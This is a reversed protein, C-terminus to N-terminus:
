RTARPARRGGRLQEDPRSLAALVFDIVHRRREALADPAMLDRGFVASLTYTNSFTFFCLASISVYLQLPDVGPRFVGAREGRHLISGLGAVLPAYVDQLTKSRRIHRGKNVNEDCLLSVFDRNAHLHDFAHGVFARLAEAPDADDAQLQGDQARSARYAAELVALHANSKSGFHHILIQKSVGARRCIREISAGHYGSIAFERYAADLLNRRTRGPDRTGNSPVRRRRSSILPPKAM